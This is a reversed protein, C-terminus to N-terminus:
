NPLERVMAAMVGALSEDTHGLNARTNSLTLALPVGHDSLGPPLLISVSRMGPTVLGTEAFHGQRRAVALMESVRGPQITRACPDKEALTRRLLAQVEADRLGSLLAMGSVSWVAYRRASLMMHPQGPAERQVIHVYRVFIGSRSSLSSPLGTHDSLRELLAALSGTRVRAKDRWSGLLTVRMCPQFTRAAGDYELYGLAVMGKLLVSTTSQPLKLRESVELARAPRRIEDFLEIVRLPRSASRMGASLEQPIDTVPPLDRWSHSKM